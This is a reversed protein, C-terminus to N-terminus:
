FVVGIKVLDLRPLVFRSFHTFPDQAANELSRGVDSSDGVSVGGSGALPIQAGLEVGLFFRESLQWFWGAGVLFYISNLYVTSASTDVDGSLSGLNLATTYRLTQYGLGTGLYFAGAFPHWRAGGELRGAVFAGNLLFPLPSYGIAAFVSWNPSLPQYLGLTFPVPVGLTFTPVFPLFPGPAAKELVLLPSEIEAHAFHSGFVSLGILIVARLYSQLPGM